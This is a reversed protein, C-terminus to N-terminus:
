LLGSHQNHLGSIWDLSIIDNVRQFNLGICYVPGIYAQIQTNYPGIYAGGKSLLGRLNHLGISGSRNRSHLNGGALRPRDMLSQDADNKGALCCFEMSKTKYTYALVSTVYATPLGFQTLSFLFKFFVTHCIMFKSYMANCKM